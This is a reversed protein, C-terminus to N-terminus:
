IYFLYISAALLLAFAATVAISAYRLRSQRLQKASIRSLILGLVSLAFLSIGYGWGIGFYDIGSATPDNSLANLTRNIADIGYFCYVISGTLVLCAIILPVISLKRKM